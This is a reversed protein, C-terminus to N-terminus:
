NQTIEGSPRSATIGAVAALSSNGLKCLFERRKVESPKDRHRVFRVKDGSM